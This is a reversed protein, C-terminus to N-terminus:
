PPTSTHTKLPNIKKPTSDIKEVHAGPQIRAEVRSDGDVEEGEGDFTV